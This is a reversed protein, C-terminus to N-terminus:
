MAPPNKVLAAYEDASLTGDKNTDAASFQDLTLKPWIKQAEAYTVGDSKDTDATAFDPPTAPAATAAPAAAM